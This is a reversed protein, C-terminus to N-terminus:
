IRRVKKVKANIFSAAEGSRRKLAQVEKSRKGEAKGRKVNYSKESKLM